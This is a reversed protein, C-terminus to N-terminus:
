GGQLAFRSNVTQKVYYTLDYWYTCGSDVSNEDEQYPNDTLVTDMPSEIVYMISGLATLKTGVPSIKLRIGHQEDKERKLFNYVEFPNVASVFKLQETDEVSDLFNRNIEMAYNHWEIRMSPICMVPIIYKREPEAEVNLKDLRSAEFGMFIVWECETTNDGQTRINEIEDFGQMRYKLDFRHDSPEERNIARKYRGPETYCFYITDWNYFPLVALFAGMMRINMLTIDVILSLYKEHLRDIFLRMSTYDLSEYEAKVGNFDVCFNEQIAGQYDLGYRKYEIAVTNRPHLDELCRFGRGAKKSTNNVWGPLEYLFATDEKRALEKVLEISGVRNYLKTM